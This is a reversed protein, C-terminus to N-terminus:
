NFLRSLPYVEYRFVEGVKILIGNWTICGSVAVLILWKIQRM